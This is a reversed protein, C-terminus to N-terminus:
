KNELRNVKEELEHDVILNALTNLIWVYRGAEASSIENNRADIYLRRIERKCDAITSLRLRASAKPTALPVDNPNNFTLSNGVNDIVTDGPPISPWGANHMIVCGVKM